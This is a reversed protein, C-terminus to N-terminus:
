RIQLRCVYVASWWHRPRHISRHIVPAVADHQASRPRNHGRTSLAPYTRTGDDRTAKEEVEDESVGGEISRHEGKAEEDAEGDAKGNAEEDAEVNTSGRAGGDYAPTEMHM